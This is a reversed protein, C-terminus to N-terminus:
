PENRLPPWPRYTATLRYLACPHLSRYESRHETLRTVRRTGQKDPHETALAQTLLNAFDDDMVAHYSDTQWQNWGVKMEVHWHSVRTEYPRQYIHERETDTWEVLVTRTVEDPQHWRPM